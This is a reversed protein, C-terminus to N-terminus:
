YNYKDCSIGAIYGTIAAITINYGGTWADIDLVEGCFYLGKIKKSEMTKPDIEKVDIGGKTIIAEEFGKTGLVNYEYNKIINIIKDIVINKTNSINNRFLNADFIKKLRDYFSDVLQYPLLRKLENIITDNPFQKIDRMIRNKLKDEDLSPKM